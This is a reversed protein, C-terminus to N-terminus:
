GAQQRRQKARENAGQKYIRQCEVCMGAGYRGDSRSHRLSKDMGNYRHGRKCLSGIHYGFQEHLEPSRHVELLTPFDTKKRIKALHSRVTNYKLGITAAIAKVGLGQNALAAIRQETATLERSM